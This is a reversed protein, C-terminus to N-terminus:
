EAGTLGMVVRDQVAPCAAVRRKWWPYACWAALYAGLANVIVDDISTFRGLDLFWQLSEVAVSGTVGIALVAVPRLRFRIMLGFGLAAFVLLNGTIQVFAFELGVDFQNRLDRLPVLNRGRHHSPDPTMTMWLWPLTGLIIFVEAFASRAAWDPDMGVRRRRIALWIGFLAAFPVSLITVGVVRLWAAAV